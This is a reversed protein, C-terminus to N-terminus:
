DDFSIINYWLNSLSQENKEWYKKNRNKLKFLKWKDTRLNLEKKYKLEKRFRKGNM